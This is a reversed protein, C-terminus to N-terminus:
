GEVKSKNSPGIFAMSERLRYRLIESRAALCYDYLDRATMTDVIARYVHLPMAYLTMHCLRRLALRQCLRRAIIECIRLSCPEWHREPLTWLSSSCAFGYYDQWAVPARSAEVPGMRILDYLSFSSGIRLESAAAAFEEEEDGHWARLARASRELLGQARFVNLITLFPIRTFGRTAFIEVVGLAAAALRAAFRDEGRSEALRPYFHPEEPFSYPPLHLGRDLMGKIVDPLLNTVAWHLPTRGEKDRANVDLARNALALVLRAWAGDDQKRCALHLPTEGRADCLNPNAGARLLEAFVHSREHRIALHLPRDGTGLVPQDLDVRGRKIFARVAGLFGLKCAAHFHTFGTQDRYNADYRDYIAFLAWSSCYATDRAALLHLATCRTLLPAGDLRLRPKDRYGSMVAFRVFPTRRRFYENDEYDWLLIQDIEAERYIDRLDPLQGTWNEVLRYLQELFERREARNRLDTPLKLRRLENLCRRDDDDEAM